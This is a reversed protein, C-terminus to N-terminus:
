NRAPYYGTTAICFNVALCPQINNHQLGNGSLSVTMPNLTLNGQPAIYAPLPNTGDTGQAFVNNAIPKATGPGNNVAMAHTHAPMETSLLTVNEVGFLEGMVTQSGFGVPTRSRMDPLAFTTTGNGGYTTGILSFLATNQTIPLITNSCFAWGKPAFNFGYIGIQGLYYNM